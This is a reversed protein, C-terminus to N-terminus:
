CTWSVDTQSQDDYSNYLVVPETRFDAQYGMTIVVQRVQASRLLVFDLRLDSSEHIFTPSPDLTQHLVINAIKVLHTQEYELRL